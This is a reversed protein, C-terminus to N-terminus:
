VNSIGLHYDSFCKSNVESLIDDVPEPNPILPQHALLDFLILSGLSHGGLSVQGQFTPNRQLFIKYLRNLEHAVTSIITQKMREFMCPVM